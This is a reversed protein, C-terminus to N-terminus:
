AVYADEDIAIIHEPRFRVVEGRGFSKTTHPDNDLTGIYGGDARSEVQVWMREVTHTEHIHFLLKAFAGPRLSERAGREPIEFTGPSEHHRQEADELTYM